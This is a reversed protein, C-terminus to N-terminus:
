VGCLQIVPCHHFPTPFSLLTETCYWKNSIIWLFHSPSDEFREGSSNCVYKDPLFLEHWREAWIFDCVTSKALQKTGMERELAEEIWVISEM